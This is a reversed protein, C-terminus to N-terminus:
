TFLESDKVYTGPTAELSFKKLREKYDKASIQQSGRHNKLWEKWEKWWSGKFYQAQDLWEHGEKTYKNNVWYGYKDLLPSNFIGAVHGSKALVFKFPGKYFQTVPYACTWPALHDDITSVFFAPTKVSPFNIKQGNLVLEGTKMLSNARYINKLFYSHAKAPIRTADANWFLMDFPIPDKGLFYNNIIYPWILNNPRLLNFSDTLLHSDLYGHTESLKEINKVHREDIFISLEGAKDFDILSAFFTASQLREDDNVEKLYSLTCSNLIAGICYGVLNVKPTSAMQEIAKMAAIPGELMYDQFTKHTHKDTPNVWSIIFVNFGQDRLWRVMSNQESLDFIYYKNIWPPTILIPISYITKTTPTYNILQILDNQFVIKGPTAGINEGVKFHNIDTRRINLRKKKPDLDRLYNFYGRILNKGKSEHTAKIVEPNLYPINSPSLADIFHRTYFHLKQYTDRDLGELDQVLSLMWHSTALYSQKMFNFFPNEQWLQDGFRKDRVEEEVFIQGQGNGLIKTMLNDCLKTLDEMLMLNKEVVRKPDQALCKRAKALVESVVDPDFVSQYTPKSPDSGRINELLANYVKLQQDLISEILQKLEEEKGQQPDNVHEKHHYNTNQPSRTEETSLSSSSSFPVKSSLGPSFSSKSM